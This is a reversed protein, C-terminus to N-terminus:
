DAEAQRLLKAKNIFAMTGFLLQLVLGFGATAAGLYALMQLGEGVNAAIRLFAFVLFFDTVVIAMAMGLFVQLLWIWRVQVSVRAGLLTGALVESSAKNQLSAIYIVLFTGSIFTAIILALGNLNSM